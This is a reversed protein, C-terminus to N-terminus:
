HRDRSAARAAARRTFALYLESLGYIAGLLLPDPLRM